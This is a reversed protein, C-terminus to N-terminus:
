LAELLSASYSTRIWPRRIATDRPMLRSSAKPSELDVFLPIADFVRHISVASLNRFEFAVELPDFELVDWVVVVDGGVHKGFQARTSSQDWYDYEDL